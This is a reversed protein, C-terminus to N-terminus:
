SDIRISEYFFHVFEDVRKVFLFTQGRSIRKEGMRQFKKVFPSDHSISEATNNVKSKYM